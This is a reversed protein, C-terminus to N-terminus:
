GHVITCHLNWRTVFIYIYFNWYNNDNNYFDRKTISVRGQVGARLLRQDGASSM